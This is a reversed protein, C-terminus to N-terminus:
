RNLFAQKLKFSPFTVISYIKNCIQIKRENPDGFLTQFM